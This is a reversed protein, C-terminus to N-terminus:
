HLKQLKLTVKNRLQCNANDNYTVEMPISISVTYHVRLLLHKLVFKKSDFSKKGHVFHKALIVTASFM